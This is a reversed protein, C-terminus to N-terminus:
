LSSRIRRPRLDTYTIQVSYESRNLQYLAYQIPNIWMRVQLRHYMRTNFCVSEAGRIGYGARQLPKGLVSKQANKSM